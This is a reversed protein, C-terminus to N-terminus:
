FLFKLLLNYRSIIQQVLKRIRNLRSKVTGEPLSHKEAIEHIKLHNFYHEEFVLIQKDSLVRYIEKVFAQYGERDLYQQIVDAPHPLPTDQADISHRHWRKRRHRKARENGIFNLATRFLWGEINQHSKLKRHSKHARVFVEQVCEEAFGEPDPDQSLYRLCFLLLRDYYQEYLAHLFDNRDRGEGM